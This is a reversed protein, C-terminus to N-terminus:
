CTYIEFDDRFHELLFNIVGKVLGRAGDVSVLEGSPLRLVKIKEGRLDDNLSLTTNARYEQPINQFIEVECLKPHVVISVIDKLTKERQAKELFLQASVCPHYVEYRSHFLFQQNHRTSGEYHAEWILIM